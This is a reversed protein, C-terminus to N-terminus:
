VRPPMSVRVQGKAAAATKIGKVRKQPTYGKNTSLPSRVSRAETNNLEGPGITTPKASNDPRDAVWNASKIRRVASNAAM